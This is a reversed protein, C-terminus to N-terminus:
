PVLLSFADEFETSMFFAAVSSGVLINKRSIMLDVACTCFFVRVLLMGFNQIGRIERMMLLIFCSSEFSTKTAQFILVAYLFILMLREKIERKKM